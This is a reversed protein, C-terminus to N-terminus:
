TPGLLSPEVTGLLSQVADAFERPHFPKRLTADAGLHLAMELCDVSTLRQGGGSIALIRPRLPRGVLERIIELGEREPMLIDTVVLDFSRRRIRRLGELGDAAIEVDRCHQALLRALLQRVDPDDEILLVSQPSPAM